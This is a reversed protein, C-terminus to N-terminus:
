PIRLKMVRNVVAESTNQKRAVHISGFDEYSVTAMKKSISGHLGCTFRRKPPVNGGGDKPVFILPAFVLTYCCIAICDEYQSFPAIDWFIAVNM